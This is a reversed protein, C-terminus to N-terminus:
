KEWFTVKGNQSEDDSLAVTGLETIMYEFPPTMDRRAVLGLDELTGPKVLTTPAGLANSFGKVDGTIKSMEERTAWGQKEALFKLIRSQMPSLQTAM